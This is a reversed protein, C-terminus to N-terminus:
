SESARRKRTRWVILQLKRPLLATVPQSTKTGTRQQLDGSVRLQMCDRGPCHRVRPVGTEDERSDVLDFANEDRQQMGGRLVRGRRHRSRYPQSSLYVDAGTDHDTLNARYPQAMFYWLM